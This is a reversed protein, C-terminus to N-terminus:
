LGYELGASYFTVDGANINALGQNEYRQLGARLHFGRGLAFSIGGGYTLRNLGEFTAKVHLVIHPIPKGDIHGSRYLWLDSHAMGLQLFLSIWRNIPLFGIGSVSYGILRFNGKMRGHIGDPGSIETKVDPEGLWTVAGQVAFYRNFRYGGDLGYAFASDEVQSHEKLTKLFSFTKNRAPLKSFVAQNTITQDGGYHAWGARIGLYWGSPQAAQLPAACALFCCLSFACLNSLNGRKM